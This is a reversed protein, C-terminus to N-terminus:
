YALIFFAGTEPASKIFLKLCDSNKIEGSTLYPFSIAVRLGVVPYFKGAMPLRWEKGSDM